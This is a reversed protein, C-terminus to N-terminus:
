RRILQMQNAEVEFKVKASTLKLRSKEVGGIGVWGCFYFIQWYIQDTLVM